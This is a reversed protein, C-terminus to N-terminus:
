KVYQKCKLEAKSHVGRFIAPLDLRLIKPQEENVKLPNEIEKSGGFFSSIPSAIRFKSMNRKKKEKRERM